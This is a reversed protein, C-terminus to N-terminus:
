KQAEDMKPRRLASMELTVPVEYVGSSGALSESQPITVEPVEEIVRIMAIEDCAQNKACRVCESWVKLPLEQRDVVSFGLKAFFDKEYTLFRVCCNAFSARELVRGPRTRISTRGM